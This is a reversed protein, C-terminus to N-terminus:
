PLDNKAEPEALLKLHLPQELEDRLSVVLESLNLAEVQGLPSGAELMREMAKALRTGESYGFTGALGALKHAESEAELRLEDSLNGELLMVAAQELVDVRGMVTERVQGWIRALIAFRHRQKEPSGTKPSGPILSLSRAALRAIEERDIPHFLM